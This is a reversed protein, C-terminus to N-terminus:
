EENPDKFAVLINLSENIATEVSIVDVIFKDVMLEVENRISSSGIFAPDVFQTFGENKYQLVVNATASKVKMNVDNGTYNLLDTKYKNSELGSERVPIYGTALAFRTNVEESTLFKVLEWSQETQKKTANAMIGLNTGQQIVYKNAEDKYFIPAIGVEFLDGSPINYTVGASSGVTLICQMAKFADSAYSAEWYSPTTFLGDDAMDDFFNMAEITQPNNFKAYGTRYDESRTTYTGGWQRTATIFFNAGSDYCFPVFKKVQSMDLIVNEVKGDVVEGVIGPNTEQALLDDVITKIEECTEKLEDWTQPVELEYYDFFTKNYVLVESSKNFPLGYILGDGFSQVEPLYDDVFDDLFNEDEKNLFSDLPLLSEAAIYEAFHDPYGVIVNPTNGTATELVIGTKLNDYGGKSEYDVTIGTKETFEELLELMTNSISQGFGTWMIIDSKSKGGCAFLCFTSAVALVLGFLKKM